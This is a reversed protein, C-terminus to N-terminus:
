ANTLSSTLTKLRKLFTVTTGLILLSITLQFTLPSPFLLSLISASIVVLMRGKKDLPGCFDQHQTLTGALFRLYATLLALCAAVWSLSLWLADGGALFGLPALIIVDAFRDPIDNFLDGLPSAKKHEVAVMGDLLNCILRLGVCLGAVPLWLSSDGTSVHLFIGGAIASFLVSVMSITNPSIGIQALLAASKRAWNTNRSKIPRREM